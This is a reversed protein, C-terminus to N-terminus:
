VTIAAAEPQEDVAEEEKLLVACNVVGAVGVAVKVWGVQAVGVPEIVIVAGIPAYM